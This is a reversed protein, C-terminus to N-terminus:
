GKGYRPPADFTQNTPIPHQLKELQVVIDDMEQKKVSLLNEYKATFSARIMEIFANVQDADFAMNNMETIADQAFKLADNKREQDM